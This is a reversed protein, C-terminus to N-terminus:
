SLRQEAIQQLQAPTISLFDVDSIDVGKRKALATFDALNAEHRAKAEQM